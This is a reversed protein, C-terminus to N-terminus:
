EQGKNAVVITTFGFLTVSYVVESFSFGGQMETYDWNDDDINTCKTEDPGPM